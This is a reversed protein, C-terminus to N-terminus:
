SRSDHSAASLLPALRIARRDGDGHRRRRDSTAKLALFTSKQTEVDREALRPHSIRFPSESPTRKRRTRGLRVCNEGHQPQLPPSMTVMGAPPDLLAVGPSMMPDTPM